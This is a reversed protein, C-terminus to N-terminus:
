RNIILKHAQVDDKTIVNIFNVGSCLDSVDITLNADTVNEISRCKQGRANYIEIRVDNQLMAPEFMLTVMNNSTPNPALVTKYKPAPAPKVAQNASILPSNNKIIINGGGNPPNWLTIGATTSLESGQEDDTAETIQIVNQFLPTQIRISDKTVRIYYFSALTAIDQTIASPAYLTRFPAGWTGGGTVVMGMSDNRVFGNVNGADNSLVVPYYTNLVHTHSELVLRVHYQEFIPAWCQILDTRPSYEAAPLMPIHYQVIKWYTDNSLTSNQQMDNAIWGKQTVDTCGDTESNLTYFRFLNGSFNMAYYINPDSVDFLKDVDAEVEHNGVSPVIPFMRGDSGITLQWDDLWEQWEVDGDSIFPINLNRVYDGNFAVFDPRVKAVLRNGDQRISRCNCTEAPWVGDRADGGAVFSVPTDPNDDITMFSLRPSMGNAYDKILFYYVKGPELNTLRAFHNTLGRYVETRDVTKTKPYLTHDTGHDITDYYVVANHGSWGVVITTSPDDRYSLRYKETLAEAQLFGMVFLGSLLATKPSKM